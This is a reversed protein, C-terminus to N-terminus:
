TIYRYVVTGPVTGNGISSMEHEICSVLFPLALLALLALVWFVYGALSYLTEQPAVQSKASSAAFRFPLALLALITSTAGTAGFGFMGQKM